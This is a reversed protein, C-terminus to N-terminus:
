FDMESWLEEKREKIKSRLNPIKKENVEDRLVKMIKLYAPSQKATLATIYRPKFCDVPQMLYAEVDTRHILDIPLKICDKSDALKPDSSDLPVKAAPRKLANPPTKSNIRKPTIM